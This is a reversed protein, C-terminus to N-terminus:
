SRQEQPNFLQKKSANLFEISILEDADDYSIIASGPESIANSPFGDRFTFILIDTEADKINMLNRRGTDSLKIQGTCPCCKEARGYPFSRKDM